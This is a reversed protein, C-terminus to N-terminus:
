SAEYEEISQALVRRNSELLQMNSKLRQISEDLMRASASLEETSRNSFQYIEDGTSQTEGSNNRSGSDPQNTGNDATGSNIASNDISGAHERSEPERGWEDNAQGWETGVNVEDPEPCYQWNEQLRELIITANKPSILAVQGWHDVKVQWRHEKQYEEPLYPNLEDLRELRGYVMMLRGWLSDLTWQNQDAIERPIVWTMEHTPNYFEITLYRDNFIM